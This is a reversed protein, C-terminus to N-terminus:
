FALKTILTYLITPLLIRTKGLLALAPVCAPVGDCAGVCATEVESYPCVADAFFHVFIDGNIHQISMFLWNYTSYVYFAM